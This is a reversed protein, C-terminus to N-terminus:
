AEEMGGYVANYMDVFNHYTSWTDRDMAFKQGRKCVILHGNRRMFGNWCGCELMRTVKNKDTEEKYHLHKKKWTIVEEQIENGETLDNALHLAETANLPQHMHAMQILLTVIQNEVKLM